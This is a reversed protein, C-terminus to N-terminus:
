ENEGIVFDSFDYSDEYKSDTLEQIQANLYASESEKLDSQETILKSLQETNEEAQHAKGSSDIHILPRCSELIGQYFDEYFKLDEADTLYKYRALREWGAPAEGRICAMGPALFITNSFRSGRRKKSFYSEISGSLYLPLWSKLAAQMEKMGRDINHIIKIKTGARICANMLSIWRRFYQTDDTMWDMKQDSYLLLLPAKNLAANGLFRLVADRIGEKGWYSSKDDNLIDEDVAEELSLLQMDALSPTFKDMEKSAPIKGEENTACLWSRFLEEDIPTEKPVDIITHLEDVAKLMLLRKYLTHSLAAVFIPNSEPLRKGNRYRSIVSYDANLLKALKVNSLEALEMVSNIRKGFAEALYKPIFKRGRKKKPPLDTGKSFLYSKIHECSEEKEPEGELGLEEWLLPLRGKQKAYDYIANTLKEVVESGPVLSRNGNQLRSIYSPAYGTAKALDQNKIGGLASILTSLCTQAM